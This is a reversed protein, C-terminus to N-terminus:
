KGESGSKPAEKDSPEKSPAPMPAAPGPPLDRRDTLWSQGTGKYTTTIPEKPGNFIRQVVEESPPAVPTEIAPKSIGAEGFSDRMVFAGKKISEKVKADKLAAETLNKVYLDSSFQGKPVRKETFYDDLKAGKLDTGKDIDKVAALVTETEDEDTDKDSGSALGSVATDSNKIADKDDPKRLCMTIQGGTSTAWAIRAADKPHVQLTIVQANPLATVGEPKKMDIGVALIKVNQLFIKSITKEGSQYRTILDVRTGPLAFGSAFSDIRVPISMARFGPELDQTINEDTLHKDTLPEGQKLGKVITKGVIKESQAEAAEVTYSGPPATNKFYKKPEFKKKVDDIRDGPKMEAIAVLVQDVNDDGVGRAALNKVLIAAVLGCAVAVIMLIMTKPKM